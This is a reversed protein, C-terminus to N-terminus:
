ATFAETDKNFFKGVGAVFKRASRSAMVRFDRIFVSYALINLTSLVAALVTNCVLLFVDFYGSVITSMCYCIIVITAATCFLKSMFQHLRPVVCFAALVCFVFAMTAVYTPDPFAYHNTKCLLHDFGHPHHIRLVESLLKLYHYFVFFHVNSVVLFYFDRNFFGIAFNVVIVWAPFNGFSAITKQTATAGLPVCCTGFHILESM